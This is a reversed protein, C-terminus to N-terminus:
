LDFEDIAEQVDKGVAEVGVQILAHAVQSLGVLSTLDDIVFM